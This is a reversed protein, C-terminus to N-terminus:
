LVVMPRPPAEAEASVRSMTWPTSAVGVNGSQPANRPSGQRGRTASPFSVPPACQPSPVAVAPVESSTPGTFDSLGQGQAVAVIALTTWRKPDPQATGPGDIARCGGRRSTAVCSGTLHLFGLSNLNAKAEAGNGSPEVRVAGAFSRPYTGQHHACRLANRLTWAEDPDSRSWDLSESGGSCDSTTATVGSTAGRSAPPPEKVIRPM